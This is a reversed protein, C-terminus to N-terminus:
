GVPDGPEDSVTGRGAAALVRAPPSHLHSVLRLAALMRLVIWTVDIQWWLFGQRASGPYYHHNNHWGEGHTLAALLLNNRSTDTTQYVRRGWTHALSNITYTVHAATLAPVLFGWVVAAPGGVVALVGIWVVPPLWYMRDLWRLEPFRLLDAILSDNRPVSEPSLIWGIHAHWLGRQKPSHPDAPLDSSRHHERHHAAWWLVGMQLATQALWALVVQGVRSTRFSRHAFYRHYGATIGFMLVTYVGVALAVRGATPWWIMPGVVAFVHWLILLVNRWLHAGFWQLVGIM